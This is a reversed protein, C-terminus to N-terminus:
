LVTVTGTFDKNRELTLTVVGTSSDEGSTLRYWDSGNDLTKAQVWHRSTGRPTVGLEKVILHHFHGSIYITASNTPAQGFMQGKIWQPV